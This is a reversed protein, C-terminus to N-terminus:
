HFILKTIKRLENMQDVKEENTAGIEIHFSIKNGSSSELSIDEAVDNDNLKVDTITYDGFTAEDDELTLEQTQFLNSIYELLKKIGEWFKAWSFEESKLEKIDANIVFKNAGNVLTVEKPRGDEGVVVNTVKYGNIYMQGDDDELFILGIQVITTIIKFATKLGKWVKGWNIKNEVQKTGKYHIEFPPEKEFIPRKIISRLALLVFLM